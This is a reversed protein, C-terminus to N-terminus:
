RKAIQEVYARIATGLQEDNDGAAIRQHGFTFVKPIDLVSIQMGKCTANYARDIRTDAAKQAKTKRM